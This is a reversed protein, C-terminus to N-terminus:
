RQFEIKRIPHIEWATLPRYGEPGVQGAPHDCDFFLSGEIIVKIPPDQFPKYKTPPSGDFYRKFADRVDSLARGDPGEDPIGSVEINLKAGEELSGDDDIILHYDNDSEKKMAFLYATVRVNRREEDIRDFDWDKAVRELMYDDDALTVMLAPLNSFEELPAIAFTTKARGRDRERVIFTDDDAERTRRARPLPEVFEPLRRKDTELRWAQLRPALASPVMCPSVYCPNRVPVWRRNRRWCATGDDPLALIAGVSIMVVSSRLKM